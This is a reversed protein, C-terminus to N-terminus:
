TQHQFSVPTHLVQLTIRKEQVSAPVSCPQPKEMLDWCLSFHLFRRWQAELQCIHHNGTLGITQGKIFARDVAQCDRKCDEANVLRDSAPCSNEKGAARVRGKPFHGKAMEAKQGGPSAPNAMLVLNLFNSSNLMLCQKSLGKLIEESSAGPWPRDAKNEERARRAM